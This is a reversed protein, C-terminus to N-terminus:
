ARPLARANRVVVAALMAVAAILVVWLTWPHRESFPAGRTAERLPNDAAPGLRAEAPPHADLDPLLSALDYAPAVADRNGYYLTYSGAPSARFVLRHVLARASVTAPRLPQDDADRIVVRVYRQADGPLTVTTQVVPKDPKDSAAARPMKGAEPPMKLFLGSGIPRWPTDVEREIAEGSETKGPRVIMKATPRGYVQYSRRFAADTFDFTVDLPRANDHGFDLDITTTKANPDSATLMTVPLTRTEPPITTRHRATVRLISVPTKEDPMPFVTVRLRRYDNDPMPVEDLAAVQASTGAVTAATYPVRHIWAADVLTVWAASAGGESGEVLVRRRFSEGATEVRLLNRPGATEMQLEVRAAGGPLAARNLLRAPEDTQKMGGRRDIVVYPVEHQDREMVRLDTLDARAGALAAADLAVWVLYGGEGGSGAAARTTEIPRVVRWRPADFGAWVAGASVLALGAGAAVLVAVRSRFRSYLFSAVVLLLGLILFSVIRYIARLQAMDLVFVKVLTLAFLAFAAYRVPRSSRGFGVAMLASAFLAWLVSVALLARLSNAAIEDPSGPLLRFHSHVEATLLALLMLTGLATLVRDVGAPERALRSDAFFGGVGLMGMWFIFSGFLPDATRTVGAVLALLPVSSALALVAGTQGVATERLWRGALLMVPPLLAWLIMVVGARTDAARQWLTLHQWTELHLAATLLLCGAVLAMSGVHEEDPTMRARNRRYLWAAAFVAATVFLWTGFTPNLAFTFPQTHLPVHRALLRIVSLAIVGMGAARTLVAEYRFGLYLILLGQVAWAMTIGHLGLQLPIALTLFAISLGLISVGIGRDAPLRKRVLSGLGLYCASMGLAIFGLPLPAVEHLMRYLFGFTFVANAIALLHEQPGAVLRKALNHGYPILLFIFYLVALGAIAVAMREPRYHSEYWAAYLLGTGGFSLLDLPRWRKFWTVALTGLALVALYAFLFEAADRGTSLLVPTLYAGSFALIAVAMSDQILALAVGLATVAAMLGFAPAIELLSYLRFAFFFSLYLAALGGGSLGQSFVKHGRRRTAEGLLIAALGAAVGIAVRGRPGIWANDYAYKLFFACAFLLTVIGAINLWRTGILMELAAREQPTKSAGGSSEMSAFVPLPPERPPPAEPPAAEAPAAHPEPVRVPEPKREPEREPRAAPPTWRRQQELLTELERVRRDLRSARVFAAIALVPTALILAVVPLILIEM